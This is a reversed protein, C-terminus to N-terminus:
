VVSRNMSVSPGIREKEGLLDRFGSSNGKRDSQISLRQPYANMDLLERNVDYIDAVKAILGDHDQVESCVSLTTRDHDTLLDWRPLPIQSLFRKYCRISGGPMRPAVTAMVMKLIGSSLVGALIETPWEDSFIAYIGHSPMFGLGDYVACPSCSMEQILLKEGRWNNPITRDITRYWQDERKVCSRKKLPGKFKAFHSEALPCASLDIYGGDSSGVCIAWRKRWSLRGGRIERSSIYPILLEEEIKLEDRTGVYAAEHGLAPGVRIHCGVNEIPPFMARWKEIIGLNGFPSYIKMKPSSWANSSKRVAPRIQSRATREATNKIEHRRQLICLMPSTSVTKQFADSPSVPLLDVIEVKELWQSRFSEACASFLWRDSSLVGIFAGSSITDIIRALFAVCLDGRTTEWPLSARYADGLESPIGTWRIYPPNTGVHTINRIRKRALLFDENRIWTRSLRVALEFRIGLTSLLDSVALRAKDAEDPHIEFAVIRGSLSQYNLPIGRNRLSEVLELVASKLFAGDGCCPELFRKGKLNYSKSWRIKDLIVGVMEPVTYVGCQKHLDLVCDSLANQFKTKKGERMTYLECAAGYIKVKSSPNYEVRVDQM